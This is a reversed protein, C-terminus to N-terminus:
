GRVRFLLPEDMPNTIDFAMEGYERLDYPAAPTFWLSPWQVQEFDIKLAKGGAIAGRTVVEM